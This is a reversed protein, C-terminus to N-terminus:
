SYRTGGSSGITKAPDATTNTASIIAVPASAANLADFMPGSAPNFSSHRRSRQHAPQHQDPQQRCRTRHDEQRAAAGLGVGSSERPHRGRMLETGDAVAIRGAGEREVSAP